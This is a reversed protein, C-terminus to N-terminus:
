PRRADAKPGLLAIGVNSPDLDGALGPAQGSLPGRREVVVPEDPERGGIARPAGKRHEEGVLGGPSDLGVVRRTSQDLDPEPPTIGDGALAVDAQRDGAQLQGAAIRGSHEDLGGRGRGRVVRRAQGRGRRGLVRALGGKWGNRTREWRWRLVTSHERVSAW